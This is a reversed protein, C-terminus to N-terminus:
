GEKNLPRKKPWHSKQKPMIGAYANHKLGYFGEVTSGGVQGWGITGAEHIKNRCLCSTSCWWKSIKKGEKGGGKSEEVIGVELQM